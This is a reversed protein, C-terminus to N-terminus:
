FSNKTEIHFLRIYSVKSMTLIQDLSYRLSAKQAISMVDSDSQNQNNRKNSKKAINKVKKSREM